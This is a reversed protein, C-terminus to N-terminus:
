EKEGRIISVYKVNNFDVESKIRLIKSVGVSDMEIKAVTGVEIGKPYLNGLANTEVKSGIEIDSQSRISTVLIENTDEDYGTIIGNYINEKSYVAVAVKFSDDKATLLKINATDKTTSKVKGLLGKETIALMGEKIGDNQGKNVTVESFYFSAQRHITSAHELDYSSNEQLDLLSRLNALEEEKEKDFNEVVEQYNVQYKPTIINQISAIINKLFAEGPYNGQKEYVTFSAFAFVLILLAFYVVIQNRRIWLHFKKKM